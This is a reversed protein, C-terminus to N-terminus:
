DIPALGADARWATLLERWRRPQNPIKMASSDLLGPYKQGAWRKFEDLRDPPRKEKSALGRYLKGAIRGSDDFYYTLRAPGMKGDILRYFDNMEYLTYSVEHDTIFVDEKRSTSRFEKDWEKYPGGKATLPHGNGEKKGFWIRADDALYTAAKGYDGSKKASRYAELTKIHPHTCGTALFLVAGVGLALRVASSCSLGM